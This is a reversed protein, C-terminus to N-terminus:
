LMEREKFESLSAETDGVSLSAETGQDTITFEQVL